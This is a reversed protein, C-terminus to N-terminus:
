NLNDKDLFYILNIVKNLTPTCVDVTASIVTKTPHKSKLKYKIVYAIVGGVASKPSVVQLNIKYKTHIENCINSISWPLKLQNCFKIFQETDDELINIYVQQKEDLIEFLIKEGKSLSKSSCNFIKLIDDRAIPIKNINCSHILCACILGKRVSARTLKGSEMYKYWYKKAQDSVYKPINLLTSMNDILQSILWYTKQKHTFTQQMHLKGILSNTNWPINTGLSNQAYPNDDIWLDSRQTNKQYNGSDDKFNNWEAENSISNGIVTGCDECVNFGEENINIKLHQCKENCIKNSKELKNSHELEFALNALNWLDEMACDQQAKLNETSISNM